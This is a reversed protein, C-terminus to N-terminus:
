VLEIKVKTKVVLVADQKNICKIKNAVRFVLHEYQKETVIVYCLSQECEGQWFGIQEYVSFGLFYKSIYKECLSRAFPNVNETMIEYKVANKM